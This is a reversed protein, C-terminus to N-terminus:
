LSQTRGSGLNDPALMLRMARSIGIGFVSAHDEQPFVTYQIQESGLQQELQKGLALLRSVMQRHQRREQIVDTGTQGAQWPALGEEWEGVALFVQPLPTSFHRSQLQAVLEPASWLSPSIAVYCQFAEPQNALTWLSFFGSLSHGALIQRQRNILAHQRALPKIQEEILQLFAAAGAASFDRQRKASDYLADTHHGIGVVVAPGVGTADPRRSLRRLTEVVTAFGANADLLYLVPYGGAPAPERPVAISVTYTDVAGTIQFTLTDNLTFPSPTANKSSPQNM